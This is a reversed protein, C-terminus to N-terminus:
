KRNRVDSDKANVVHKSNNAQENEAENDMKKMRRREFIFIVACLVIVEACIGLFPWLAAYKDIVRILVTSNASGLENWAYCMYMARDEMMADSIVLISDANGNGDELDFRGDPNVKDWNEEVSQEETKAKRWEVIPTPFGSVMCTVRLKEGEVVNSSSSFKNVYPEMTVRIEQTSSRVSPDASECTYSGIDTTRPKLFKISHIDSEKVFKMFEAELVETGNKFWRVKDGSLTCNLLFPGEMNRKFVVEQASNEDASVFGWLLALGFCLILETKM